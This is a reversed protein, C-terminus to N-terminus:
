YDQCIVVIKGCSPCKFVFAATEYGLDDWLAEYSEVNDKLEDILLEKLISMGDGNPSHACFDEQEWEGIYVMFDDCCVPWDNNQIWPVPPCFGLENVKQKRNNNVKNAIYNPITVNVKRKDFCDLCISMVGDNRDFFAGDLCNQTNGCFQCPTETFYGNKLVDEFYKYEKM